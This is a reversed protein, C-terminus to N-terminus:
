KMGNMMNGMNPVRGGMRKMMKQMAKPSGGGSISKVMKKSQKYQKLLERVEDVTRGSGHAVREIRRADMVDPNELEEKTCSDMIYRWIEIKGEQVDLMEKPINMEGMGPILKMLKSLSGMKKLSKMQSYMDILNFDGSLLKQSMDAADEETIASQARELLGELDGMGILRSVFRKPDYKELDDVREGVGIFKVKADTVACATLAGGGKATGDMKTVIIGTVGVTDHFTQAQKQAAQGIDASIVLLREDATIGQNLATLEEILEDNLADRGATDIIVVDFKALEKEFSQYLKVPDKEDPNGFVPVNIKEGIQRLQEYAAPRWTDTSILAVKYGRKAYYKGLKGAHTTKGSGFLGVLMIKTPKEKILIRDEDEGLFKVLEDYVIKIAADKKSLGAPPEEKLIRQKIENTLNFILKVNVDSSLLSRQIDRIIENVLKEDVFLANKLKGFTNKLSDGLKELAM